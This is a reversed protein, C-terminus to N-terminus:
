KEGLKIRNSLKYSLVIGALLLTVINGIILPMDGVLLGYTLWLAVGTCFLIYMPLSIAKTERTQVTKIVQPLFAITALTAAAFGIASIANLM